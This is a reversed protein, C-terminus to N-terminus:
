RGLWSTGREGALFARQALIFALIVPATVVLAGALFVPFNTPGLLELAHLMAPATLDRERRLYLLPDIFNSWFLAAALLAIAATTPRVLPMAVRWWIALLSLGEMRAADVLDSPIRTFSYAYLLVFVPSGGTLAPAILPVYTGVLGLASWALFRPIWIATAPVMALLLLVLILGGRVRGSSLALALGAWSATVVTIPVAVATVLLSNLLARGLPVLAFADRFSELSPPSPLSFVGGEPPTGPAHLPAIVLAAVPLGFLLVVVALGLLRIGSASRESDSAAARGEIMRRLTHV